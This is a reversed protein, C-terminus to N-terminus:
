GSESEQRSEVGKIHYDREHDAACGANSDHDLTSRAIIAGFYHLDRMVPCPAVRFVGHKVM